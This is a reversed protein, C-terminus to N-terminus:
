REEIKRLERAWHLLVNRFWPNLLCVYAVLVTDLTVWLIRHNRAVEVSLCLAVLLSNVAAYTGYFRAMSAEGRTIRLTTGGRGARREQRWNRFIAFLVFAVLAVQLLPFLIADSLVARLIALFSSMRM